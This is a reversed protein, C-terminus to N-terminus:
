GANFLEKRMEIFGALAQDHLLHHTDKVRLQGRTWVRRIASTRSSGFVHGSLVKESPLSAIAHHTDDLEVVDASQGVAIGDVQRGSAQAGGSVAGLYLATAVEPFGDGAGINRQRLHFRQSYELMLLEEAASVVSNSDSGIGWRGQHKHWLPYDFTGDGLNGETTPCLGVVAGTAAAQQYERENMHTAHILCWHADVQAHDLLWEVPRQGSWAVCDEVEKLQEAIHIHVPATADMRRVAEVLDALNQPDVARLSHPAIGLRAHQKRCLPLLTEWLALIQPTSHIFRKQLAVPPQGGFGGNQYCVPLLTLGIGTNRAANLLSRCMLAPDAYPAGDPQHHVYHFECVSTYGAELMEAYLWTAVREMQEPTIRAAFAYMLNRWSWFSDQQAHRYETLGAFARQFAHSHLNPMGPIICAVVEGDAPRAADPTVRQIVGNEDWEILVNQRWGTALLAQQAFLQKSIM